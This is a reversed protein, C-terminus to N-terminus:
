NGIIGGIMVSCSKESKAVGGHGDWYSGCDFCEWRDRWKGDITIWYIRDSGCHFCKTM